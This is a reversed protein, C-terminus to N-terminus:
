APLCGRRLAREFMCRLPECTNMSAFARASVRVPIHPPNSARPARSNLGSPCWGLKSCPRPAPHTVLLHMAGEDSKVGNEIELLRAIERTSLSRASAATKSYGGLRESIAGSGRANAIHECHGKRPRVQRPQTPMLEVDSLGFGILQSLEFSRTSCYSVFVGICLPEKGRSRDISARLWAHDTAFHEVTAGLPDRCGCAAEWIQHGSVLSAPLEHLGFVFALEQRQDRAGCLCNAM